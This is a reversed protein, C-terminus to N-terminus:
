TIVIFLSHQPMNYMDDIKTVINVHAQISTSKDNSINSFDRKDTTLEILKDATLEILKDATLEIFKDATLEILKDATM